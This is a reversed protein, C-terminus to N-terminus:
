DTVQGVEANRVNVDAGADLLARVRADQGAAAASCLQASPANWSKFAQLMHKKSSGLSTVTPDM